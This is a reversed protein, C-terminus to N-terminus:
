RAAWQAILAGHEALYHRFWVAYIEPRARIDKELESLAIWKWESAEAADPKAPGGFTGGFV